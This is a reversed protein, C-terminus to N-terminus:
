QNDSGVKGGDAVLRLSVLARRSFVQSLAELALLANIQGDESMSDVIRKAIESRDMPPHKQQKLADGRPPCQKVINKIQLWQIGVCYPFRTGRQLARQLIVSLLNDCIRVVCLHM